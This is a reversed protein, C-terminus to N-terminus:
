ASRVGKSRGKSKAKSKVAEARGTKKGRGNRVVAASPEESGQEGGRADEPRVWASMPTMGVQAGASALLSEMVQRPVRVSGEEVEAYTECARFEGDENITSLMVPTTCREPSAPKGLTLLRTDRVLSVQDTDAELHPGTDFPDVIGRYSFGLSELLRRAPVTEPSVAGIQNQVELPLLSLYIEEKPLLESIFARNHQCFRDAEAYKVPIFKRGFADWFLNDGEPTVPPAMEAIIRNSFVARNLAVFHFRVFSLFRGPRARHGRHSPALILGGIETPGSEDGYLQGVKHNTGWGLQVSRFSKESIKFAWNPNGPGGMKARVQSTGLIAGGAQSDTDVITFMFLDSEEQMHSLGSGQRKPRRREQKSAEGGVGAVLKNFCRQSHQIKELILREDPPLNIFYVMRALKQLTSADEPKSQRIVFV